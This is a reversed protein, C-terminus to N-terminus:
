TTRGRKEESTLRYIYLELVCVGFGDLRAKGGFDVELYVTGFCLGWFWGVVSERRFGSGHSVVWLKSPQPGM